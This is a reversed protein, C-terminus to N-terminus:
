LDPAPWIAKPRASLPKPRPSILGALLEPLFKYAGVRDTQTPQDSWVSEENLAIRETDVGGFVMAGLRGNGM